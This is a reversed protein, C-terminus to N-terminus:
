QLAARQQPLYSAFVQDLVAYGEETPHIGDIGILKKYDHRTLFAERVNLLRSGTSEAVSEVARNYSEHWRYLM